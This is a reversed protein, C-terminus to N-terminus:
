EEYNKYPKSYEPKVLKWILPEISKSDLMAFLIGPYKQTQFYMATEKRDGLIKFSNQVEELINKYKRQLDAQVSKVWDFLDSNKEKPILYTVWGEGFLIIIGHTENIEEAACERSGLCFANFFHDSNKGTAKEVWSQTTGHASKRKSWDFEIRIPGGKKPLEGNFM